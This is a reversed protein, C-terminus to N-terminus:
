SSFSSRSRGFSGSRGSFGGSRSTPVAVRGFGEPKQRGISAAGGLARNSFLTPRAAPRYRVARALSHPLPPAHRAARAHTATNFWGYNRWFHAHHHTSGGYYMTRNSPTVAQAKKSDFDQQQELSNLGVTRVAIGSNEYAVFDANLDDLETPDSSSPRVYLIRTVGISLLSAASPLPAVYRNDFKDAGDLYTALRKDDLVFAPPAPTPRLRAAEEFTRLHYLCAGLTVHSPVVGAPHPWNDFTFLPAFRPALAAAVAVSEPGPLDIILALDAPASAQECLQRLAQGREFAVDMAASHVPLLEERLTSNMPAAVAQFLTQNAYPLLRAERPSLATLLDAARGQWAQGGTVDTSISDPFSLPIRPQGVSWGDRRQLDLADYTVLQADDNDSSNMKTCLFAGSMAGFIGGAVLLQQMGESLMQRRGLLGDGAFSTFSENWWRMGVLDDNDFQARSVFDKKESETM